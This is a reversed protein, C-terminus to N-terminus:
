SSCNETLTQWIESAVTEITGDKKIIIHVRESQVPRCLSVLRLVVMEFNGQTEIYGSTFNAQGDWIFSNANALLVAENLNEIAGLFDAIDTATNWVKIQNNNITIIYKYCTSKQGHCGVNFGSNASTSNLLTRQSQSLESKTKTGGTTIIELEADGGEQRFEWYDFSQNSKIAKFDLDRLSPLIEVGTFNLAELPSACGTLLILMPILGLLLTRRVKQLHKQITIASKNNNKM